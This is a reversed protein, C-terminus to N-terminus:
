QMRKSQSEVFVFSVSINEKTAVEKTLRKLENKLQGSQEYRLPLLITEQLIKNQIIKDIEESFRVSFPENALYYIKLSSEGDNEWVTFVQNIKENMIKQLCKLHNTVISPRHLWEKVLFYVVFM